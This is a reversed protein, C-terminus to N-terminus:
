NARMLLEIQETRQSRQVDDLVRYKGSREKQKFLNYFAFEGSSAASHAASEVAAGSLRRSTESHFSVPLTRNLASHSKLKRHVLLCFLYIQLWIMKLHIWLLLSANQSVNGSESSRKPNNWKVNSM